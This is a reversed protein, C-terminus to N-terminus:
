STVADCCDQRRQKTRFVPSDMREFFSKPAFTTRISEYQHESGLTKLIKKKVSGSSFDAEQNMVFSPRSDPWQQISEKSLFPTKLLERASPRLVPHQEFCRQIFDQLEQPLTVPVAPKGGRAVYDIVEDLELIKVTKGGETKTFKPKKSIMELVVCGVSWIDIKCWLEDRNVCASRGLKCMEPSMFRTRSSDSFVPEMRLSSCLDLDTIKLVALDWDPRNLVINTGDIYGHAINKNHLYELGHLIQRTWKQVLASIIKFQAAHHLNGGECYEMIICDGGTNPEPQVGFYRVINPHNLRILSRLHSGPSKFATSDDLSNILRKVAVNKPFAGDLREAYFYRQSDGIARIFSLPITKPMNRIFPHTKLLYECTPRKMSRLFCQDVLSLANKDTLSGTDPMARADALRRLNNLFEDFSNEPKFDFPEQDEGKKSNWKPQAGELMEIVTCGLSFVDTATGVKSSSTSALQQMETSAFRSSGEPVDVLNRLSPDLYSAKEFHALKLVHEQSDTNQSRRGVLINACRIDKHIISRDHLFLLGHLIQKTFNSVLTTDFDDSETLASLPQLHGESETFVFFDFPERLVVLHKVINELKAEPDKTLTNFVMEKNDFLSKRGTDRDYVSIISVSGPTQDDAFRGPLLIKKELVRQGGSDSDKVLHLVTQDVSIAIKFVEESEVERLINEDPKLEYRRIRFRQEESSRKVPIVYYPKVEDSTKECELNSSSKPPENGDSVLSDRNYYRAHHLQEPETPYEGGSSSSSNTPNAMETVTLVTTSEASAFPRNHSPIDSPTVLKVRDTDIKSAPQEILMLLDGASLRTHPLASLCGDLLSTFGTSMTLLQCHGLSGNVCTNHCCTHGTPFMPKYGNEFYRHMDQLTITSPKLLLVDNQSGKTYFPPRGNQLMQILVCGFSFIDTKRGVRPQARQPLSSLAAMEPSVFPITGTASEVSKPPTDVGTFHKITTLGTIKLLKDKSIIINAGRIDGHIICNTHLFELGKLIQRSYSTIDTATGQNADLMEKYMHYDLPFGECEETLIYCMRSVGPKPFTYDIGYYRQVHISSKGQVSINILPLLRRRLQEMETKSDARKASKVLLEYTASGPSLQNLHNFGNNEFTNSNSLQLFGTKQTGAVCEELVVQYVLFGNSSKERFNKAFIYGTAM